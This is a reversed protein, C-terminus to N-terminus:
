PFPIGLPLSCHVRQCGAQMVVRRLSFIQLYAVRQVLMV